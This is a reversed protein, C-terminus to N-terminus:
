LGLFIIKKTKRTAGRLGKKMIISLDAYSKSSFGFNKDRPMLYDNIYNSKIKYMYSNFVKEIKYACVKQDFNIINVKQGKDTKFSVLQHYTENHTIKLSEVCRKSLYVPCKTSVWYKSKCIQALNSTTVIPFVLLTALFTLSLCKM